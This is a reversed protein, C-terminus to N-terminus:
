SKDMPGTLYRQLNPAVRDAVEHASASALPEIKVIYRTVALGLIQSLVLNARLRREPEPGDLKGTIIPIIESTAFERIATTMGEQTLVAQLTLALGNGAPSDWVALFAEILRRGLGDLDGDAIGAVVDVPNIPARMAAVFLQQKTGCHYPILAPDVQARAAIKRISAKDFGLTTFLERAAALIAERTENPDGPRRGRQSSDASHTM